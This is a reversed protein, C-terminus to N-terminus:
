DGVQALVLRIVVFAVGGTPVVVRDAGGVDDRQLVRVVARTPALQAEARRVDAAEIRDEGVAGDVHELVGDRGVNELPQAIDIVALRNGIINPSEQNTPIDRSRLPQRGTAETNRGGRPKEMVDRRGKAVSRKGETSRTKRAPQPGFPGFGKGTEPRTVLPPLGSSNLTGTPMTRIAKTGWSSANFFLRPIICALTSV